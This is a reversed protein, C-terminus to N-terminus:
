AYKEEGFAAMQMFIDATGADTNQSIIDSFHQSYQGDALLCLARSFDAPGLTWRKGDIEKVLITWTPSSWFGAEAYWIDEDNVVDRTKWRRISASDAVVSECWGRTVPDGSEVFSVMLDAITKWPVPVSTTVVIAEHTPVATSM